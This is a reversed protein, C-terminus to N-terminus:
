AQAGKHPEPASLAGAQELEAITSVGNAVSTGNGTTTGPADGVTENPVMAELLTVRPIVGLLRGDDDTM